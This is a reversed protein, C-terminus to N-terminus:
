NSLQPSHDNNETEIEDDFEGEEDENKTSNGKRDSQSM